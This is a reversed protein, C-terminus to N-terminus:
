YLKTSGETHAPCLSQPEQLVYHCSTCCLNISVKERQPLDRSCAKRHHGPEQFPLGAWLREEWKWRSSHVAAQMRQLRSSHKWAHLNFSFRWFAHPNPVPKNMNSFLIYNAIPLNIYGLRTQKFWTFLTIWTCLLQCISGFRSIYRPASCLM